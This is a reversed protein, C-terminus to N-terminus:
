LALKMVAASSCRPLKWEPSAALHADYDKRSGDSFGFRRAFFERATTTLLVVEKVGTAQAHKLMRVTLRSGIGSHQLAPSVAVSRLLAFEGYRELGACAVLQGREDTAVLFDDLHEAVGALPLGAATLLSLVADLAAPTAAAITIEESNM